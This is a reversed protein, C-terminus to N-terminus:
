EHSRTGYLKQSLLFEEQARQPQGAQRLARGLEYHTKPNTPDIQEALQLEAIAGAFNNTALLARGLKEHCAASTPRIREAIRLPGLAEQARDQDLLFTGLDLFPWEDPGKADAWGEANRLAQEARDPHNTADYVLGLGEEAKAHRPHIALVREYMKEADQYRGKSYYCRGLSYLVDTNAPAMRAAVELWHIADDYDNLLVYDLAVSHLEAPTPRRLGAAQTYATLSDRPKDEGRLVLGLEYLLEPSHPQRQLEKRSAIERQQLDPNAASSAEAAYLSGSPRAAKASKVDEQARLNTDPGACLFLLLAVYMSIKMTM